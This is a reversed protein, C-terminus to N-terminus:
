ETGGRKLPTLNWKKQYEIPNSMFFRYDIVARQEFLKEKEALNLTGNLTTLSTLNFDHEEMRKLALPNEYNFITVADKVKYGSNRAYIISGATTGATNVLEEVVLGTDGKKINPNGKDGVINGNVVAYVYPIKEERLAELYNRTQQAIIVGGTVNGIIFDFDKDKSRIALEWAFKNMADPQGALGKVMAYGPGWLGSSYLFPEEGGELDRVELAGKEIIIRSVDDSSLRGYNPKKAISKEVGKKILENLEEFSM